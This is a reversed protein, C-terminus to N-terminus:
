RAGCASDIAQLANGSGKLSFSDKTATGRSSVSEVTVMHGKKLAEVLRRDTEGDSAWATNDHGVLKFVQQDVRLSVEQGPKFSYGSLFSVVNMSQEDPRHTVMLYVPDRRSYKGESRDPRSSVFCVKGSGEQYAYAQWKGESNLLEPVIDARAAQGGTLLLASLGFCANLAILRATIRFTKMMM